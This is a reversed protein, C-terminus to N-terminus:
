KKKNKLKWIELDVHTLGHPIEKEIKSNFPHRRLDIEVSQDELPMEQGIEYQQPIKKSM